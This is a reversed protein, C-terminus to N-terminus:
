DKPIFKEPMQMMEGLKGGIDEMEAKLATMDGMFGELHGSDPLVSRRPRGLAEADGVSM